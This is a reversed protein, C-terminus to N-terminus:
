HQVAFSSAAWDATSLGSIFIRGTYVHRGIFSAICTLLVEFLLKNCFEWGM